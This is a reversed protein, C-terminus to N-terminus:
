HHQKNYTALEYKIRRPGELAKNHQPFFRVTRIVYYCLYVKCSVSNLPPPKTVEAVFFDRSSRTVPKDRPKSKCQMSVREREFHIM